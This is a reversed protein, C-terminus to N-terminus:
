RIYTVVSKDKIVSKELVDLNRRGTEITGAIM